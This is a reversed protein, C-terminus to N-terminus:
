KSFVKSVTLPDPLSVLLRQVGSQQTVILGSQVVHLYMPIFGPGDQTDGDFRLEYSGAAPVRLNVVKGDILDQAYFGVDFQLGPVNLLPSEPRLVFWGRRIGSDLQVPAMAKLEIDIGAVLKVQEVGDQWPIRLPAYGDAAIVVDPATGLSCRLVRHKGEWGAYGLVKNNGDVACVKTKGSNGPAGAIEIRMERCDQEVRWPNLRSDQNIEGAVIEIKEIQAIPMSQHEAVARYVGPQLGEHVFRGSRKLDLRNMPWSMGPGELRIAWEFTDVPQHSALLIVGSLSGTQAALDASDSTEKAPDLVRARDVDDNSTAQHPGAAEGPAGGQQEAVVATPSDSTSSQNPDPPVPNRMLWWVVAVVAALLVMPLLRNM